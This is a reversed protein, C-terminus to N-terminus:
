LDKKRNVDQVDISFVIWTKISFDQRERWSYLNETDFYKDLFEGATQLYWEGYGYQFPEYFVEQWQLANKSYVTIRVSHYTNGYTKAFWRKWQISVFSIDNIDKCKEVTPTIAM